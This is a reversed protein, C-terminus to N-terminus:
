EGKIQKILKSREEIHIEIEELLARVSAILLDYTTM